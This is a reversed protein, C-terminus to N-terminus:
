PVRGNTRQTSDLFERVVDSVNRHEGDVLYNMKRMAQDSIKGALEAFARRVEPHKDVVEQRILPVAEYPPFYHKDDDLVFLKLSDILGDTSNGAILDVQGNALAKYTLGLDMVRPQSALQLNYLKSLGPYGDEREIFEYGFGATWKPSHTAAESISNINLKKAEDERILMVFTNNFGLPETWEVNFQDHYARKVNEYVSSADSSPAQKLIATLATGTYEVYADIQGSVIAQHCILTGGLNLRRDVDIGTQREIQQALLEGLIVQETFNKSAVVIRDHRSCAALSIALLLIFIRRV